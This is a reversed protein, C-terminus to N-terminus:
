TSTVCVLTYMYYAKKKKASASDAEGIIRGVIFGEAYGYEYMIGQEDLTKRALGLHRQMISDNMDSLYAWAACRAEIRPQSAEKASVTLSTALLTALILKNM